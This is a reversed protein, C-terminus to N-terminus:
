VGSDWVHGAACSGMNGEDLLTFKDVMLKLGLFDSGGLARWRMPLPAAVLSSTLCIGM